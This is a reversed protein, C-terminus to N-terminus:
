FKNASVVIARCIKSPLTLAWDKKVNIISQSRSTNPKNKNTQKNPQRDSM